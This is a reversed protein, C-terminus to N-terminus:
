REEENWVQREAPIGLEQEIYAALEPLYDGTIVAEVPVPIGEPSTRTDVRVSIDAGLGRAKNSIYAATEQAIGTQLRTQVQASLEEQRRALEAQREGADSLLRKPRIEPLPWLLALLLLLGGTFSALKGISGPPIVMRVVSVIMSVTVVSLIWGEFWEM